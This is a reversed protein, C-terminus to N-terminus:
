IFSLGVICGSLFLQKSYYISKIFEPWIKNTGFCNHVSIMCCDFIQQILLIGLGSQDSPYEQQLFEINLDLILFPCLIKNSIMQRPERMNILIFTFYIVTQWTILEHLDTAFSRPICLNHIIQNTFVQWGAQVRVLFLLEQMIHFFEKPIIRAEILLTSISNYPSANWLFFNLTYNEM